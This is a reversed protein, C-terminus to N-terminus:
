TALAWVSLGGPSMRDTSARDDCQECVAAHACTQPQTPEAQAKRVTLWVAIYAPGTTIVAVALETFAMPRVGLRAKMYMVRYPHPTGVPLAEGLLRLRPRILGQAHSSALHLPSGSRDERVAVRTRM